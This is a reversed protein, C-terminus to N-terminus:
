DVVLGDARFQGIVVIVHDGKKVLRGKNSFAMWYSRGAIPASTQRLKGVKEMAPVVLKVGARLDYLEPEIKKDNLVQAKVPDLVTYSFRIMEGAEVAKVSPADVGWVLNYYLTARKAFRHASYHVPTAAAAVKEAPGSAQGAASSVFISGALVGALLLVTTGSVDCKKTM